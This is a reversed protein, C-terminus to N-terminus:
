YPFASDAKVTFSASSEIIVSRCYVYVSNELSPSENRIIVYACCIDVSDSHIVQLSAWRFRVLTSMVRVLCHRFHVSPFCLVVYVFKNIFM